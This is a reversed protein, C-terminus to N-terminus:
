LVCACVCVRARARVDDGYGCYKSTKLSIIIEFPTQGAHDGSKVIQNASFLASVFHLVCLATCLNCYM